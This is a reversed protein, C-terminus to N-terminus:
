PGDAPGAVVDYALEATTGAMDEVSLTLHMPTGEAPPEDPIPLFLNYYYDWGDGGPFTEQGELWIDGSDVGDISISARVDFMGDFMDHTRFALVVMWSGQVGYVFPVASGDTMATYSDPTNMSVVNTGIEFGGAEAADGAADPQGGMDAAADMAADAEGNGNNGGADGESGCGALAILSCLAAVLQQSRHRM